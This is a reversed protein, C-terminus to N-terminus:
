NGCSRQERQEKDNRSCKTQNLEPLDENEDDKDSKDSQTSPLEDSDSEDEIAVSQDTNTLNNSRDNDRQNEIEKDVRSSKNGNFSWNAHIRGAESLSPSLSCQVAALEDEYEPILHIEETQEEKVVEEPVEIDELMLGPDFVQNLTLRVDNAANIIDAWVHVDRTEVVKSTVPNYMCYMDRAHNEVYGIMM